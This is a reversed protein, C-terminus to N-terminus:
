EGPAIYAPSVGPDGAKKTANKRFNNTKKKKTPLGVDDSTELFVRPPQREIVQGLSNVMETGPMPKKKKKKKKKNGLGQGQEGQPRPQNGPQGQGQGGPRQQHQGQPRPGGGQGQNQPRPGGGGQGQQRPGQNQGEKRPEGQEGGQRQEARPEGQREGGPHNGQGQREGGRNPGGGGGKRKNFGGGQGGPGGRGMRGGGRGTGRHRPNYEPGAGLHEPVPVKTIEMEIMAEIRGFNRMDDENIFTIAEGTSDARATRGIRHVYDEPDGPVDYNVVHSLQDIDIGRSMIDTAVLIPFQKNKFANVIEERESQDRDSHMGRAELGLEQLAKTIKDVSTKRSAFIIVSEVQLEKMIHQVLRIKQDDYVCYARQVIGAAPKSISISIEQPYHLIEQALERIKPPMTASFLLSQRKDNCFSIIRRIDSIFGMDLMRDAEDLILFELKSLDVYGLSIHQLLRGPTAIVIDAGQLFAAKQRSFDDGGKNGGFVPFSRVYSHYALGECAEDIQMALERTPGLILGKIHTGPIGDLIDIVPILFAATKGTGTQACAILDHGKLIVPIAQEQIPTAEEFGMDKLGLLIEDHLDFETFKL